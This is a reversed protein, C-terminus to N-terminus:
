RRPFAPQPEDASGSVGHRHTKRSGPADAFGPLNDIRAGSLMIEGGSVRGPSVILNAIASGTLSKGAGSEGVVGLVEGRGIDFSISDIAKLAGFRTDFEVSLDRVSLVPENVPAM